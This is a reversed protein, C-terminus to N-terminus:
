GVVSGDKKLERARWNVHLLCLIFKFAHSDSEEGKTQKRTSAGERRTGGEKGGEKEGERGAGNSVRSM